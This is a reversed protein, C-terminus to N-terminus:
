NPYKVSCWTWFLHYCDKCNWFISIWSNKLNFSSLSGRKRIKGKLSKQKAWNMSLWPIVPDVRPRKNSQLRVEISRSYYQLNTFYLLMRKQNRTFSINIRLDIHCWYKVHRWKWPYRFWVMYNCWNIINLYVTKYILSLPVHYTLVRKLM